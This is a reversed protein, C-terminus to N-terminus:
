IENKTELNNLIQKMHDIFSDKTYNNKMINCRYCCPVVNNLIYGKDNDIRDIGLGNIQNNCYYCQTNYFKECDEKTLSFEYNRKRASKLYEHYQGVLTMRYINLRARIEEKNNSYYDKNLQKVHPKNRYQQGEVKRCEICVSRVGFKGAKIKHFMAIDKEINCTTCVKLQM